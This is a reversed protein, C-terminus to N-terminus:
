GADPPRDRVWVEVGGELVGALDYGARRAVAASRPNAVNVRAFLRRLGLDHLAWDTLLQLAIAARGQGRSAPFLWYGVEAWGRTPEVLVFGVEGDVHDADGPRGIVLDVARGEARRDGEGAIWRRAAEVSRDKPVTTWRVVDPDNWARSLTIGDGVSAAWPRLAM